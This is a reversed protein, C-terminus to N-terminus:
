QKSRLSAYQHLMEAPTPEIPIDRCVFNDTGHIQILDASPGVLRKCESLDREMRQSALEADVVSDATAAETQQESPGDLLASGAALLLAIAGTLAINKLNM